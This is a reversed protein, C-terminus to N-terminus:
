AAGQADSIAIHRPRAAAMKTHRPQASMKGDCRRQNRTPRRQMKWRLATFVFPARAPVKISSISSLARTIRSASSWGGSFVFGHFDGSFKCFLEGCKGLAQALEDLRFECISIGDHFDAAAEGGRRATVAQLQRLGHGPAAALRAAPHKASLM